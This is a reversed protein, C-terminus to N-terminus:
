VNRARIRDFHSLVDCADSLGVIPAGLAIGSFGRAINKRSPKFGRAELLEALRKPKGATEDNVACWRSWDAFLQASATWAERDIRCRDELWRGVGDQGTFYDKTADRVVPPPNLGERQWDLCGQMAWLMIGPLEPLLKDILLPDRDKEPITVTFPVLHIRRRIAEDV